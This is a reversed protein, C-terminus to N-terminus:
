ESMRSATSAYGNPYKLHWAIEGIIQTSISVGVGFLMGLVIANRINARTLEITM